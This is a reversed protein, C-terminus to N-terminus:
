ILQIYLIPIWMICFYLKNTLLMVSGRTRISSSRFYTFLLQKEQYVFWVVTVSTVFFYLIPVNIEIKTHSYKDCERRYIKNRRVVVFCRGWM